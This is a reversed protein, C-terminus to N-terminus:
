FFEVLIPLKLRDINLTDLTKMNEDFLSYDCNNNDDYKQKFKKNTEKIQRPWFDQTKAIYEMCFHNIAEQKNQDDRLLNQKMTVMAIQYIKASIDNENMNTIEYKKLWHNMAKDIIDNFLSDLQNRLLNINRAITHPDLLIEAALKRKLRIPSHKLKSELRSQQHKKLYGLVESITWSKDFNLKQMLGDYSEIDKCVHGCHFSNRYWPWLSYEGNGAEFELAYKRHTIM